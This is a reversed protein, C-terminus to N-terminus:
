RRPNRGQRLQARDEGKAADGMVARDLRQLQLPASKGEGMARAVLQGGPEHQEVAIM